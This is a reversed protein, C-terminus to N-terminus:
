REGDLFLANHHMRFNDDEARGGIEPGELAQGLAIDYRRRELLSQEIGTIEDRTGTILRDAEMGVIVALNAGSTTVPRVPGNADGITFHRWTSDHFTHPVDWDSMFSVIMDPTAQVIRRLEKPLYRVESPVHATSVTRHHMPEYRPLFFAWSAGYRTHGATFYGSPVDHYVIFGDSIDIRSTGRYIAYGSYTSQLRKSASWIGGADFVYETDMKSADARTEFRFKAGYEMATRTLLTHLDVWAVYRFPSMDKIGAPMTSYDRFDNPLEVMDMPVGERSLRSWNGDTVGLIGASYLADAPRQEYVTVDHGAKALTLAAAPGTIGAGIISVTASM